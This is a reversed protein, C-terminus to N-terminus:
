REKRIRKITPLGGVYRRIFNIERDSFNYFLTLAAADKASLCAVSNLFTTSFSPNHYDVECDQVLHQQKKLSKVLILIADTVDM